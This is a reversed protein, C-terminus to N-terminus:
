FLLPLSCEQESKNFVKAISLAGIIALINGFTVAPALQSFIAAQNGHALGAAYIQSLPTIGAGMGGSMMPMSVYMVSDAFGNGILM